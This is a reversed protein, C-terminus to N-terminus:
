RFMSFHIAFIVLSVALFQIAIHFHQDEPVGARRQEHEGSGHTFEKFIFIPSHDANESRLNVAAFQLYKTRVHDIGLTPVVLAHMGLYAHHPMELVLAVHQM